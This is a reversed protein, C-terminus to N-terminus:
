KLRLELATDVESVISRVLLLHHSVNFPLLSRFLSLLNSIHNLLSDLMKERTEKRACYSYSVQNEPVGKRSEGSLEKGYNFGSNIITRDYAVLIRSLLRQIDEGILVTM